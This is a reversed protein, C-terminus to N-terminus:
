DQRPQATTARMMLEVDLRERLIFDPDADTIAKVLRRGAATGIRRAPIRVTTLAPEMDASGAFDGIGVVSLEQPVSVGLRLAAYVAGQAIIDNGCLLATPRESRPLSLIETCIKKSQSVSYPTEGCWEDRITVGAEFLTQRAANLRDRARDNGETPPFVLGVRRHGLVVIHQAALQGAEFNDAGICSIPSDASYNWITLSPVRQKGLIGISDQSHNLGVLAVGDVRHELLKRIVLYESGLDYGHTALLVTFGHNSIEDNFAQVVEAFIAYNMTPVILGITGSRKGHMAQAARNRIYGSKRIATDIRKRTAPSVLDPHNIARSVTAPSVGALRAVYVIDVKDPQKRM